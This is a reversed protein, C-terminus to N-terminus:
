TAGLVGDESIPTCPPHVYISVNCNPALNKLREIASKLDAEEQRENESLWFELSSVDDSETGYPLCVKIADSIKDVHELEVEHAMELDLGSLQPEYTARARRLMGDPNDTVM